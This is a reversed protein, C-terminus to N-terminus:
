KRRDERNKLREDFLELEVETTEALDRLEAKQEAVKEEIAEKLSKSETRGVAEGARQLRSGALFRLNSVSNRFASAVESLGSSSSDQDKRDFAHPETQAVREVQIHLAGLLLM